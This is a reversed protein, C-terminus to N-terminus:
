SIMLIKVVAKSNPINSSPFRPIFSSKLGPFESESVFWGFRLHVRTNRQTYIFQIKYCNNEDFSIFDCRGLFKSYKFVSIESYFQKKTV